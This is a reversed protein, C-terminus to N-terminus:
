CLPTLPALLCCCRRRYRRDSCDASRCRLLLLRWRRCCCHQHPPPPLVATATARYRGLSAAASSPLHVLLKDGGKVTGRTTVSLKQGGPATIVLTKPVHGGHLSPEFHLGQPVTITM